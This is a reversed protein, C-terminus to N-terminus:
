DGYVHWKRDLVGKKALKIYATSRYPLLADANVGLREL